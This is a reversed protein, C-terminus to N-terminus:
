PLTVPPVSAFAQWLRELREREPPGDFVVVRYHAQYPQAPTIKFEGTSAPSFVFYATQPHLRVPEPARFNTPHALVALGAQRGNFLGGMYIWRLAAQNAKARDTEGNSVMFRTGDGYLSDPCHMAFGGYSNKKVTVPSASACAQHLSVDFLNYDLEAPMRYAAVRWTERLAPKEPSVTRDHFVNVATFGAAVPGAWVDSIGECRIQTTGARVDWFNMTRGEFEATFWASWMAYQHEHKEPLRPFAESVVAGARTRIGDIYGSRAYIRDIDARPPQITGFNFAFLEHGDVVAVLSSKDKRWLVGAVSAVPGQRAGTSSVTPTAGAAVRPIMVVRSGGPLAQAALSTAPDNAAAPGRASAPVKWILAERDTPHPAPQGHVVALLISVIPIAAALRRSRNEKRSM